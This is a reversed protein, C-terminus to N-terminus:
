IGDQYIYHLLLPMKLDRSLTQNVRVDRGQVFISSEQNHVMLWQDLLKKELFCVAAFLQSHHM